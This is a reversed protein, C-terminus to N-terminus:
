KHKFTYVGNWNDLKPAKAMDELRRLYLDSPGDDPKIQMCAMFNKRSGEVDQARYCKRGEAFHGIFEGIQARDKLFEPRMLEFVKVPENKGKVRIDDLDRYILSKDTLKAVTGESLMIKIGYEKTLGELRAGLNVSDGMVTYCFREHSGMNGVSMMGTNLGIGIDLVPFGKKPFEIRLQDLAYLMQISARAAVDAHDPRDIPAGWFAMIADGIYKDLVGGSRLIISTMPGLYDNMLECLKEPSLGESITTFSRVDSFFVTCERKDGGLKLKGPDDLVQSIVDPSLYHQFAGKVKKKEREETMYKYLTTSVFLAMIELFPIGIYAWTGKGFWFFKDFYYYGVLFGIVAIGSLSASAWIMLPSFLIGIGLVIFLETTFLEVPRRMFDGRVANDVMTAHNEVGNLAPDFPNPRLDSIGMATPGLILASGKLAARQEPTFSDDYADALSYFPLTKSRGRHNLLLNGRGMPDVPVKIESNDNPNVLSIGSVGTSDFTTLIERGLYKAALLLPMSPMLNNDIIRVLPIWRVIADDSLDGNFFGFMDSNQRLFSTPGEIGYAKLEASYSNLDRGKPLDVLQVAAGAFRDMGNLMNKEGLEAKASELTEYYLYGMVVNKFNKVGRGLSQDGPSATFMAELRPFAQAAIKGVERPSAGKIADLDKRADELLPREPESFSADFALWELGNKKLNNFAKEYVGRPFPFRGFKQISKTDLALVGIKGTPKTEGRLRFRWDLLTTEITSVTDGENKGAAIHSYHSFLWLWCGYVIAGCIVVLPIKGKVKSWLKKTGNSM